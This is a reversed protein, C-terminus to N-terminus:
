MAANGHAERRPGGGEKGQPSDVVTVELRYDMQYLLRILREISFRELRGRRLDSIRPQDIRM